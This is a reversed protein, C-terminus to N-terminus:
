RRSKEDLYGQLMVRAAEADTGQGQAEAVKTTATEDEYVVLSQVDAPLSEVVRVTETVQGGLSGDVNRPRGVVIAAINYDRLLEALKRALNATLVTEVARATLYTEDSLALGTRRLGIDLGLLRAM